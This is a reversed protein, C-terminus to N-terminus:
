QDIRPPASLGGPSLCAVSAASKSLFPLPADDDATFPLPFADHYPLTTTKRHLPRPVLGPAAVLAFTPMLLALFTRIRGM